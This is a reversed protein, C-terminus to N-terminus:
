PCPYTKAMLEAFAGSLSLAARQEPPYSRLHEMMADSNFTAEGDPLCSHPATGAAREAEIRERYAQAVARMEAVSRAFAPNQEPEFAGTEDARQRMAAFDISEWITLFEAVTPPQEDAKLPPGAVLTLTALLVVFRIM